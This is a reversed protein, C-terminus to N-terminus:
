IQRKLQELQNALEYVDIKNLNTKMRLNAVINGLVEQIKITDIKEEEDVQPSRYTAPTIGQSGPLGKANSNPNDQTQNDSGQYDEILKNFRRM